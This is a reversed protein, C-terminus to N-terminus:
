NLSDPAKAGVNTLKKADVETFGLQGALAILHLSVMEDDCMIGAVFDHDVDYSRLLELLTRSIPSKPDLMQELDALSQLTLSGKLEPRTEVIFQVMCRGASRRGYQALVRVSEIQENAWEFLQSRTLKPM